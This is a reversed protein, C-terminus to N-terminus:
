NALSFQMIPGEDEVLKDDCDPRLRYIENNQSNFTLKNNLPLDNLQPM